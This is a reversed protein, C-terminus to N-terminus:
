LDDPSRGGVSLHHDAFPRSRGNAHAESGSRPAVRRCLRRNRRKQEDWACCINKNEKLVIYLPAWPYLNSARPICFHRVPSVPKDLFPYIGSAFPIYIQRTIPICFHRFLVVSGDRCGTKWNPYLFSSPQGVPHNASQSVFSVFWELSDSELFPYVSSSIPPCAPRESLSVRIVVLCVLASKSRSVGSVILCGCGEAHDPYM